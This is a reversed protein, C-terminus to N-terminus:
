KLVEAVGAKRKVKQKPRAQSMWANRKESEMTNVTAHTLVQIDNVQVERDLKMVCRHSILKGRAQTSQTNKNTYHDGKGELERYVHKRQKRSGDKPEARLKTPM